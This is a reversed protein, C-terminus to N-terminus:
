EKNLSSTNKRRNTAQLKKRLFNSPDDLPVFDSRTIIIIVYELYFLENKTLIKMTFANKFM